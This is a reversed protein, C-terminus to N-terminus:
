RGLDSFFFYLILNKKLDVHAGGVADNGVVCEWWRKERKAPESMQAKKKEFVVRVWGGTGSGVVMEVMMAGVLDGFFSRLFRLM